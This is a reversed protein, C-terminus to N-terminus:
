KPVRDQYANLYHRIRYLGDLEIAKIDGYLFVYKRYASDETTHFPRGATLPAQFRKSDKLYGHTRAFIGDTIQVGGIARSYKTTVFQSIDIDLLGRKDANEEILADGLEHSEHFKVHRPYIMKPKDKGFGQWISWLQDLCGQHFVYDADCFWVLDENSKLAAENRGISRRFLTSPEMFLIDLVQRNFKTYLLDDFELLVDMTRNDRQLCCVTLYVPVEPPYLLLSSIQYRLDMAYQKLQEAYCHTIIRISL